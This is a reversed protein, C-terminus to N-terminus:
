RHSSAARFVRGVLLDELLLSSARVHEAKEEEDEGPARHDGDGGDGEGLTVGIFEETRGASEFPRHARRRPVALGHAFRM